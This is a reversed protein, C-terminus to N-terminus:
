RGQKLNEIENELKSITMRNQINENSLQRIKPILTIWLRDYEIGEAQGKDGKIVFEELGAKILDEAILGYHRNVNIEPESLETGNTKSDALLEASSKDIWSSMDISLLKNAPSISTEKTIDLKYKSASTIRGLTGYSTVTVTSG